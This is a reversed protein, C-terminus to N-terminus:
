GSCCPIRRLTFSSPIFQTVLEFRLIEKARSEREDQELWMDGLQLREITPLFLNKKKKKEESATDRAGGREDEFSLHGILLVCRITFKQLKMGAQMLM